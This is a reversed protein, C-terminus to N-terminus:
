MKGDQGGPLRIEQKFVALHQRKGTNLDLHAKRRAVGGPRDNVVDRLNVGSDAPVHDKMM